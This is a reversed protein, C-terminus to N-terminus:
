EIEKWADAIRMDNAHSLCLPIRVAIRISDDNAFYGKIPMTGMTHLEPPRLCGFANCHNPFLPSYIKNTAYLYIVTFEMIGGGIDFNWTHGASKV